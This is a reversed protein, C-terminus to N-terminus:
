EAFDILEGSQSGRNEFFSFLVPALILPCFSPDADEFSSSRRSVLPSSIKQKGGGGGESEQKLCGCDEMGARSVEKTALPAM